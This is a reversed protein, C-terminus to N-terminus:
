NRTTSLQPLVISDATQNHGLSLNSLSPDLAGIPFSRHLNMQELLASQRLSAATETLILYSVELLRVARHQCSLMEIHVLM